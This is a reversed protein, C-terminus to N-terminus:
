SARPRPAHPCHGLGAYQVTDVGYRGAIPRFDNAIGPASAFNWFYGCIHGSSRCRQPYAALTHPRHLWRPGLGDTIALCPAHIRIYYIYIYLIIAYAAIAASPLMTCRTTVMSCALAQETARSRESEFHYPPAFTAGCYRSCSVLATAAFACRIELDTRMDEGFALQISVIQICLRRPHSRRVCRGRECWRVHTSDSAFQRFLPGIDWLERFAARNFYLLRFTTELASQTLMLVLFNVAAVTLSM